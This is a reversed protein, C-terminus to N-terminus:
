SRKKARQRAILEATYDVPNLGGLEETGLEEATVATSPWVVDHIAEKLRSGDLAKWFDDKDGSVLGASWYASAGALIDAVQLQLVEKSDTLVLGTAKLPFVGTRRDYGVEVEPEDKAMLFELIERQQKLIGSEDHLVQFEQGLQKGWADALQVFTPIAPDLAAKDGRELARDLVLRTRLLIELDDRFKPEPCQRRLQWVVEYFAKVSEETTDRVMTVFASQLEEFAEKGLFAPMVHHWMNAMALNTGRKYLDQGSAHFLTEVLMDVIKTTIMFRKHYIVVKMRSREVLPSKLIEVVIRRGSVRRKLTSFKLEAAQSAVRDVLRGAEKDSLHVSALVFVPQTADLLNQGTNGAEDFAIIPKMKSQALVSNTGIMTTLSGRPVSWQGHGRKTLARGCTHFSRIERWSRALGCARM